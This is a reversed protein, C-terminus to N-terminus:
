NESQKPSGGESDKGKNGYIYIYIDTTEKFKRPNYNSLNYIKKLENQEM